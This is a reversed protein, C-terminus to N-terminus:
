RDQRERPEARADRETPTPPRKYGLAAQVSSPRWEAGGRVTPQGQANLADAIAQLTMGRARMTTIQEVLEPQDSLAPRGSAGRARAAALGKRTREALRQHEWGSVTTLARAVLQGSETATDIGPDLVVLRGGTRAVQELVEALEAASRTLRALDTVILCDAEGRTLRELAHNLGPRELGKGSSPEAERVGGVFAWGRAACAAEIAKAQARAGATYGRGPPVSVYGLARVRSSTPAASAGPVTPDRPAVPPGPAGPVAQERPAVPPGPAGPVAQERSAVPPGPAGPVTPARSAESGNHREPVARALPAAESDPRPQLGREPMAAPQTALWAATAPTIQEAPALPPSRRRRWRVAGVVLLTGALVVLAIVLALEVPDIGGHAKTPKSPPSTAIPTHRPAPQTGPSTRAPPPAARRRPPSTTTRTAPSASKRLHALRRATRPGVIGDVALANARQFRRVAAETRSGFRGDVPGPHVGLARLGRQLARVQKSGRPLEAGMGRALRVPARLAPATRPGVIGDVALRQASQFRRVAADTLPGFRGDVPGADLGAARLRRQLARVQSSGHPRDYGAGQTIMVPSRIGDSATAPAPVCLAVLASVVAFLTLWRTRPASM